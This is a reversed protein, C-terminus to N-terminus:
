RNSMYEESTRRFLMKNNSSSNSSSVIGAAATAALPTTTGSDFSEARIEDDDIEEARVLENDEPLTIDATFSANDNGPTHPSLSVSPSMAPTPIVPM